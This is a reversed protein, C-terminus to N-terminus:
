RRQAYALNVLAIAIWAVISVVIGGAGPSNSLAVATVPIGLAISGLVIRPDAHAPKSPHREELRREIREVFSDVLLDEYESGLERRAELAVRLDDERVPKGEM